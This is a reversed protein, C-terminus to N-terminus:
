PHYHLSESLLPDHIPVPLTIVMALGSFIAGSFSVKLPVRKLWDAASVAAPLDHLLDHGLM